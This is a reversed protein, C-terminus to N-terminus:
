CDDSFKDVSNAKMKRSKFCSLQNRHCLQGLGHILHRSADGPELLAELNYISAKFASDFM